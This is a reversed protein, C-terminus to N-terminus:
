NFGLLNLGWILKLLVNSFVEILEFFNDPFRVVDFYFVIRDEFAVCAMWRDNEFSGYKLAWIVEFNFNEFWYFVLQVKRIRRWNSDAKTRIIIGMRNRQAPLTADAVTANVTMEDLIFFCCLKPWAELLFVQNANLQFYPWGM